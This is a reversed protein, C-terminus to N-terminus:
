RLQGEGMPESRMGSFLAAVFIVSLFFVKFTAQFVKFTAQVEQM